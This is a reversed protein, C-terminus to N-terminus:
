LQFHVAKVYLHIGTVNLGRGFLGVCHKILRDDGPLDRQIKCRVLIKFDSTQVSRSSKCWVASIPKGAITAVTYSCCSPRHCFMFLAAFTGHQLNSQNKQGSPLLPVLHLCLKSISIFAWTRQRAWQPNESTSKFKTNNRLSNRRISTNQPMAAHKDKNAVM